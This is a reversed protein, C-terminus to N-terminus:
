KLYVINKAVFIPIKELELYLFNSTYMEHNIVSACDDTDVELNGKPTALVGEIKWDM